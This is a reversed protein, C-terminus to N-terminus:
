NKKGVLLLVVGAGVVGVGGWVPINVTQKEDVSMELSGLKIDHTEKTYSFTGYVLGLVGVVILVLALIKVPSM